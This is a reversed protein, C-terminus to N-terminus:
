QYQDQQPDVQQQGEEPIQILDDIEPYIEKLSSQLKKYYATKNILTSEQLEREAGVVVQILTQSLENLSQLRNTKAAIEMDSENFLTVKFDTAKLERDYLQFFVSQALRRVTGKLM